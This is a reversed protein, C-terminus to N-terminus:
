NILEKYVEVTREAVSRWSFLNVMRERGAKGMRERRGEDDLAQAIAAAL